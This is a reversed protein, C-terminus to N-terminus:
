YGLMEAVRQNSPLGPSMARVQEPSVWRMEAIEKDALRFEGAIHEVTWVALIHRSDHVRISGLRRLPAVVIGLEEFLERQVAIRGTEGKDIHGGPFCWCGPKPVCAARRIMLCAEDRFLVGIVGRRIPLTRAARKADPAVVSNSADGDVINM